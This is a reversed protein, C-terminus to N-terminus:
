FGLLTHNIVLCNICEETYSFLFPVSVTLVGVHPKMFVFSQRFRPEVSPPSPYKKETAKYTFVAQWALAVSEM